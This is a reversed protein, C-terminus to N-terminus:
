SEGVRRIVGGVAGVELGLRGGGVAGTSEGLRRGGWCEVPDVAAVRVIVFVSGGVALLPAASLPVMTWAGAQFNVAPLLCIAITPLSVVVAAVLAAFNMTQPNWGWGGLFRLEADLMRPLQPHIWVRRGCRWAMVSGVFGLGATLLGCVLLTVMTAAFRDMDPPGGSMWATVLCLLVTAFASAAGLGCTMAAGFWVCARRRSEDGDHRWLWVTTWGAGWGAYVAPLVAGARPDDTLLFAAIGVALILFFELRNRRGRGNVNAIAESSM